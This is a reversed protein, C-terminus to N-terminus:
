EAIQEWSRAPYPHQETVLHGGVRRYPLRAVRVVRIQRRTISAEEYFLDRLLEAGDDDRTSRGHVRPLAVRARAEVSSQSTEFPAANPGRTSPFLRSSVRVSRCCVGLDSTMDHRNGCTSLAARDSEYDAPRQNSDVGGWQKGLDSPM